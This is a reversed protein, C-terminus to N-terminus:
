QNKIRIESYASFRIKNFICNQIVVDVDYGLFGELCNFFFLNISECCRIQSDLFSIYAQLYNLRIKQKYSGYHM